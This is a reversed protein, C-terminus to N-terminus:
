QENISLVIHDYFPLTFIMFLSMANSLTFIMFWQEKRFFPTEPIKNSTADPATLTATFVVTSILTAVLMCSNATHKMAEEGVKLLEKHKKNFLEKPTM